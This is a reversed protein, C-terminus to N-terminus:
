AGNDPKINITYATTRDRFETLKVEFTSREGADLFITDAYAALSVGEVDLLTVTISAVIDEATRNTLAGTVKAWYPLASQACCPPLSTLLLHEALVIGPPASVSLLRPPGVSFPGARPGTPGESM